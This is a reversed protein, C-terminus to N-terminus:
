YNPILDVNIRFGLLFEFHSPINAPTEPSGALHVESPPSVQFRTYTGLSLERLFQWDLGLELGTSLLTGTVPATYSKGELPREQEFLHRLGFLPAVNLRGVGFRDLWFSGQVRGLFSIEDTFETDFQAGIGFNRHPRFLFMFGTRPTMNATNYLPFSLEQGISLRRFRYEPIIFGPQPATCTDYPLPNEQFEKPCLDPSMRPPTM